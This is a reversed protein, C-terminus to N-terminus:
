SARQKRKGNRLSYALPNRVYGLERIAKSVRESTAPTVGPEGNVVRSVTKLCVSAQQAVDVMTARYGHDGDEQRLVTVVVDCHCGGEDHEGLEVVVDGPLLETPDVHRIEERM